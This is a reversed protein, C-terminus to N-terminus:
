RARACSGPFNFRPGSISGFRDPKNAKSWTVCSALVFGYAPFSTETDTDVAPGPSASTNSPPQYRGAAHAATRFAVWRRCVGSSRVNWGAVSGVGPVFPINFLYDWQARELVYGGNSDTGTFVQAFDLTASNIGEENPCTWFCESGVYAYVDVFPVYGSPLANAAVNTSSAGALVANAIAALALTLWKM